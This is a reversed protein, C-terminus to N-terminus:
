VVVNVVNNVLEVSVRCKSYFITKEGSLRVLQRAMLVLALCFPLPDPNLLHKLEGHFSVGEGDLIAKEQQTEKVDLSRVSM